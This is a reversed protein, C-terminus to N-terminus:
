KLKYVKRTLKKQLRDRDGDMLHLRENVEQMKKCEGTAQVFVELEKDGDAAECVKEWLQHRYDMGPPALERSMIDNGEAETITDEAMAEAACQRDAEAERYDLSANDVEVESHSCAVVLTETEEGTYDDPKSMLDVDLSVPMTNIRNKKEREKRRAYKDAAKPIRSYAIEILQDALSVGEKWEWKGEYLALVFEAQYHYLVNSTGLTYESHAGYRTRGGSIRKTNHPGKVVRGGLLESNTLAETLADFAAIWEDNRVNKLRLKQEHIQQETM